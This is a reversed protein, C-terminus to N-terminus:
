LPISRDECLVILSVDDEFCDIEKSQDDIGDAQTLVGVCLTTAPSRRQGCQRHGRAKTGLGRRHRWGM